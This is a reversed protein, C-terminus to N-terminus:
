ANVSRADLIQVFTRGAATLEVEAGDDTIRALGRGELWQAATRFVTPPIMVTPFINSVLARKHVALVKLAYARRETWPPRLVWSGLTIASV